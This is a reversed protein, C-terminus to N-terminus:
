GLEKVLLKLGLIGTSTYPSPTWTNYLLGAFFIMCILMQISVLFLIIRFWLWPVSPCCGWVVPWGPAHAPDLSGAGCCVCGYDARSSISSWVCNCVLPSNCSPCIPLPPALLGSACGSCPLVCAPVHMRADQIWTHMRVHTCASAHAQNVFLDTTFAVNLVARFIESPKTTFPSPIAQLM